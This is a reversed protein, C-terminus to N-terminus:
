SSATRRTPVIYRAEPTTGVHLIGLCNGVSDDLVDLPDDDALGLLEAEGDGGQQAAAM